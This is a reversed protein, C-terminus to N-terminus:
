ASGIWTWTAIGLITAALSGALHLAM